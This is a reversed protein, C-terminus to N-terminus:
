AKCVQDYLFHVEQCEQCVSLLWVLEVSVVCVIGGKM